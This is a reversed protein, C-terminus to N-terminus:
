VKFDPQRESLSILGIKMLENKNLKGRISDQFENVSGTNRKRNWSGGLEKLIDHHVDHLLTGYVRSDLDQETIEESIKHYKAFWAKKPMRELEDGAQHGISEKFRSIPIATDLIMSSSVPNGPTIPCPDISLNINTEKGKEDIRTNCCRSCAM